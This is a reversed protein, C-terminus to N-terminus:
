AIRKAHDAAQKRAHDRFHACGKCFKDPDNVAVPNKKCHACLKASPVQKQYSRRVNTSM